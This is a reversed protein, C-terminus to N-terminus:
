NSHTHSNEYYSALTSPQQPTLGTIDIDAIGMAPSSNDMPQLTRLTLPPDDWSDRSSHPTAPSSFLAQSELEQVVSFIKGRALHQYYPPLNKLTPALVELFADIPHKYDNQKKNNEIIYKMLATEPLVINRKKRPNEPQHIDANRNSASIEELKEDDASAMVQSNVMDSDSESPQEISSITYREHIHPILFQLAEEYKYKKVNSDAAQGSKTKRRDLSKKFQDRINVSRRKCSVDTVFLMVIFLCFFYVLKV